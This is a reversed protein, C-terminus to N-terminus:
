LVLLTQWWLHDEVLEVAVMRQHYQQTNSSEEAPLYTEHRYTDIYPKTTDYFNSGCLIFLNM